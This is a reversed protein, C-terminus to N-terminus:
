INPLFTLYFTFRLSDRVGRVWKSCVAQRLASAYGRSGPVGPGRSALGSSRRGKRGTAPSSLPFGRHHPQVAAKLAVPCCGVGAELAAGGGSQGVQLSPNCTGPPAPPAPRQPSREQAHPAPAPFRHGGGGQQMGVVSSRVRFDTNGTCIPVALPTQHSKIPLAVPERVGKPPPLLHDIFLCTFGLSKRM